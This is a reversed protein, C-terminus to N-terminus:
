VRGVQATNAQTIAGPEEEGEEPIQQGRLQRLIVVMAQNEMEMEAVVPEVPLLLLEMLRATFVQDVAEPMSFELDPLQLFLAPEEPEPTDPPPIEMAALRVQEAAVAAWMIHEQQESGAM